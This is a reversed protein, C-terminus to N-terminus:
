AVEVQPSDPKGSNMSFPVIPPSVSGFLEDVADAAQQHMDPLVHAYHRLTTEVDDHGLRRSVAKLNVGRLLLLTASTHRLDYVRILPLGAAKLIPRFVSRLFNSQRLFGGEASPFVVGTGVDRGEERMRERHIRLAEVTRRALRITRRSNATKPEKLRLNGRIEELTRRITVTGADLDLETWHLAYLEGPRPGADLAFDFLTALRHGSAAALLAAAQKADLATKEAPKAKPLKVEKVVNSPVLRERVADSLAARLVKGAKHRESNSKGDKAMGTLLDNVHSPGLDRLQVTGLRPILHKDVRWKDHEYTKPAVDPKRRDLWKLLWDGVTMKGATVIRGNAQETRKGALWNKAEKRTDFNQSLKRRKRTAPDIGLPFVARYKGTPLKEISGDGRRGRKEPKATRKPQLKILDALNM